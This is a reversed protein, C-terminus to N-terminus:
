PRRLPCEWRTSWKSPRTMTMPLTFIVDMHDHLHCPIARRSLKSLPLLAFALSPHGSPKFVVRPDVRNLVENYREYDTAWHHIFYLATATTIWERAILQRRTMFGLIAKVAESPLFDASNPTM